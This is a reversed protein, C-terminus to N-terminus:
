EEAVAAEDPVDYLMDLYDSLIDGVTGRDPLTGAMGYIGAMGDAPAESPTKSVIAVAEALDSEFSDLQKCFQEVCAVHICVPMQLRAIDWGREEMVDAVLLINFDPADFAVLAADSDGVLRLGDISRVIEKVREVGAHVTAAMRLYEDQGHWIMTAWATAIASGPRSGQATHTAYLGGPWDTVTTFVARRLDRNAFLICSAGKPANGFKHVDCSISTVGAVGFDFPRTLTGLTQMHSLLFGGLCNDVHLGCGAARTAKALAVVDDVVGHPFSVASCYVVITDPTMAARAAAIDMRYESDMGVKVLKIGLYECAKDLAPHASVCAVCQPESIHLNADRYAKMALMISETGGSALLGCAKPGANLMALVMSLIESEFKRLATFIAPYLANSCNWLKYTENQLTVLPSDCTHYIGGFMRGGELSKEKGRLERLQVLLEDADWGREPLVSMVHRDGKAAAMIFKRISALAEEKEKAVVGKLGPMVKAARIASGAVAKVVGSPGVSIAWTAGRYVVVATIGAQLLKTWAPLSDLVSLLSAFM